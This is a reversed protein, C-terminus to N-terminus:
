AAYRPFIIARLARSQRLSPHRVTHTRALSLSLTLPPPSSGRRAAFRVLEEPESIFRNIDATVRPVCYFGSELLNM